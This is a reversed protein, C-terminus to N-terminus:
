SFFIEGLYITVIKSFTNQLNKNADEYQDDVKKDDGVTYKM